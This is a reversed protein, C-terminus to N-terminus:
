SKHENVSHNNITEQEVNTNITLCYEEDDSESDAAIANVQTKCLCKKAFHNVKRCNLCKKGFAPCKERMVEHRKCERNKKVEKQTEYKFKKDNRPKTIETAKYSKNKPRLSNIDERQELAKRM